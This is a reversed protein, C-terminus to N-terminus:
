AAPLTGARRFYDAFAAMGGEAQAWDFNENPAHYGHEPLSLGLFFVPAKLVKEMSLVAGISGGERVFVPERGFAFAMAGRIADANPGTTRGRYAPLGHEAEVKVDPNRKKVFDRVLKIIRAERMNPVLRCSVIATARPPIVTKVGPGQYGGAIGHVEFTPMCWIRKMVELPDNTRISKFQHDKKFGSVTFGSRKLDQLEQRTPPVVDAYFGPIKVRGSTGDVCDSILQCIETVPNRAAGGTVGSHQDSKGLELSFRFGQLGRLGAPCAPRTRSVWVTDSVIVSDTKLRGAETKIAGEFHPSGIEEETEWLIQLNIKAGNEIAYRGGWLATLAPGKDDTSGRGFYRGDRVTFRFPETEWGDEMEAPQVDIHNYLTVTPWSPDRRFLGHVLPHGGTALVRVEGGFRRILGAAYEAGRAVEGKRQPEVSVTPIEVLEGLASEFAQRESAAYKRLSERTFPSDPM